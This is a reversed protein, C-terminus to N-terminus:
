KKPKERETPLTKKFAELISILLGMENQSPKGGTITISATKDGFPFMLVAPKLNSDNNEELLTGEEAQGTSDKQVNVKPKEDVKLEKKRLKAIEVTEKYCQIIREAAQKTYNQQQLYWILTDDSPLKAPYKAYIDSFIKPNSGCKTLAKVKDPSNEPANLITFADDSIRVEGHKRVILGYQYLSALLQLAAGTFSKSKYGMAETALKKPIFNKGEKDYLVKVKAIANKLGISPYVPSKKFPKKTKDM